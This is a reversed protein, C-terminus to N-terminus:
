ADVVKGLLNSTEITFSVMEDVDQIMDETIIRNFQIISESYTPHLTSSITRFEICRDKGWQNIIIEKEKECWCNGAKRYIVSMFAGIDSDDNTQPLLEVILTKLDVNLMIEAEVQKNSTLHFTIIFNRNMTAIDLLDQRNSVKITGDLDRDYVAGELVTKLNDFATPDFM